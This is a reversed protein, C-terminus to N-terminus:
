FSWRYVMVGTPYPYEPFSVKFDKYFCGSCEEEALEARPFVVRGGDGFYLGGDLVLITDQVIRYQYRFVAPSPEFWLTKVGVDWEAREVGAVGVISDQTLRMPMINFDINFTDQGVFFFGNTTISTIIGYGGYDQEGCYSYGRERGKCEMDFATTDLDAYHVFLLENALCSYWTLTGWETQEELSMYYAYVSDRLQEPVDEITEYDVGLRMAIKMSDALADCKELLFPAIEWGTGRERSVLPNSVEASDLGGAESGNEKPDTGNGPEGSCASLFFFVCLVFAVSCVTNWKAMFISRAM